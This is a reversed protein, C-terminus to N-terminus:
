GMETIDGSIAKLRKKKQAILNKYVTVSKSKLFCEKEHGLAQELSCCMKFMGVCSERFSVTLNPVRTETLNAEFVDVSCSSNPPTEEKESKETGRSSTSTANLKSAQQAHQKPARARSKGFLFQRKSEVLQEHEELSFSSKHKKGKQKPSHTDRAHHNKTKYIEGQLTSSRGDRLRNILVMRNRRAEGKLSCNLCSAGCSKVARGTDFYSFLFKHYCSNSLCFEKVHKFLKITDASKRSTPKSSVRGHKKTEKQFTLIYEVKSNESESYCLICVSSHGDRGARGSEQVYAEISKPLNLHIVFRVNGKDIGMGFSVTAVIIDINGALWEDQYQFREKVGSYYAYARLGKKRLFLAVNDCHDKKRCYVIGCIGVMNKLKFGDTKGLRRYTNSFCEMLVNKDVPLTDDGVEQESLVVEYFLNERFLGDIFVAPKDLKLLEIVQQRVKETATATFCVIPLSFESKWWKLKLYAPRFDHGWSSICHCEDVVLRSLLRLRSAEVLCNRFSQTEMMEPTVYLLRINGSLLNEIVKKKEADSCRSNYEYCSIGLNKCKMVQDQALAILPSIVISTKNKSLVAPLQFCLSKGGGTPKVVLVDQNKVIATIIELQNNRFDSLQFVDNLVEKPSKVRNNWLQLLNQQAM